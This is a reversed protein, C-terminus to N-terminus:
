DVPNVTAGRGAIAAAVYAPTPVAAGARKARDLEDHAMDYAVDDGTNIVRTVPHKESDAEVQVMEQPAADDDSYPSVHGISYTAM